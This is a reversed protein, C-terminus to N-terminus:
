DDGEKEAWHGTSYSPRRKPEEGDVGVSEEAPAEEAPATDGAGKGMGTPPAAESTAADGTEAPAEEEAPADGDLPLVDEAGLREASEDGMTPTFIGEDGEPAGEIVPNSEKSEKDTFLLKMM